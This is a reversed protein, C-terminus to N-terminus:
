QRELTTLKGKAVKVEDVDHKKHFDLGFILRVDVRRVAEDEM